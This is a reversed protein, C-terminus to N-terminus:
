APEGGKVRSSAAIFFRIGNLCVIGVSWPRAASAIKNENSPANAFINWRVRMKVGRTGIDLCELIQGRIHASQASVAGV